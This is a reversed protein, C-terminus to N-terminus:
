NLYRGVLPALRHKVEESVGDKSTIIADKLASNCPCDRPADLKPVVSRLLDKSTAVNKLLNQIVMEVTVTEAGQRWCDYDTVWAMTTYCMEAERALKAEPLATMGIITADVERRYFHSEARTSFQPGEMCIYTGGQHVTADKRRAAAIVIQRMEECFPDAFSMHGVIGNGFFTAPRFGRSRDFIQDPVVMDGPHIHEQMIGVASVAMVHTVGLQKLAHINARANVETPLLRHGRGHRPLFMVTRGKIRTEVVKDSPTGFPTDLDHETVVEVGEMQYVGSGGIVGLRVSKVANERM